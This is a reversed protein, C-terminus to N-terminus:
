CMCPYQPMWRSATRVLICVTHKLASILFIDCNKMQFNENKMWLFASNLMHTNQNHFIQFITCIWEFDPRLSLSYCMKEHGVWRFMFNQSSKFALFSLYVKNGECQHTHYVYIYVYACMVMFSVFKLSLYIDRSPVLYLTNSKLM